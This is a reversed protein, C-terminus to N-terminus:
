RGGGGDLLVQLRRGVVTTLLATGTIFLGPIVALWWAISIYQRSDSLMAGWEPDPPQAGLGLFSLSSGWVIAQGVGLTALVLLPRVVNPVVTRGLVRLPPHGLARAAEVYGSGAVTLTQARFMRAYGPATGIGVAVATTVVGTGTIAIVLLALILGPFAFLVELVRSVAADVLRGGLGALVGLLAGLVIGIATACVGILLSPRAGTVIRAFVDRGSQDTGFLHGLSPAAFADAPKIAFPDQSALLSPAVAALVLAALLVAAVLVGAGGRGRVRRQPRAAEDAPAPVGARPAVQGPTQQTPTPTQTATM